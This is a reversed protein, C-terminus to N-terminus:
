LYRFYVYVSSIAISFLMLPFAALMFPLFRIPEGARDAFGAVIINASAGVLSGNGGLCSGLSLAWWLPMLAEASGFTPEMSEILPIMTAVFPINDVLASAIASVWVITVATATMSGGTLDLLGEAAIDLLGTEEVGRVLVFLGIFFFVVPWEVERLSDHVLDTQEQVKMPLARLLLLVSAGSIALTAPELQVAHSFVFGLLVLGLVALSQWMLRPDTIARHEDYRMVRLRDRESAKMHRGWVLYLPILGVLLILVVVPGLNVVFDNFSLGVASGIMINPPDGILTATGGINSALIEAFLFPYAKLRLEDAILITVPAVILVTTVNDLTASLVATVFVLMVMLPWPRAGVLKVSRIALFQFVGSQKALTVIVMMGILLGLTNFDVGEIAQDQDIVGSMIMLSGALLALVTRHLRDTMILVYSAVFLGGAFWAPELGFIM